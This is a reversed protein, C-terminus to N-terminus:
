GTVFGYRRNSPTPGIALYERRLEAFRDRHVEAAATIPDIGYLRANNGGFIANKIPGDAPGLPAFGHAKQMDDPIELRRM